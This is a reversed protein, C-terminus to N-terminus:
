LIIGEQKAAHIVVSGGDEWELDSYFMLDFPKKFTKVLKRGIGTTLEIREFVSKERFTKSVIILDIDSDKNQTGRATSGFVVIKDTNIGKEKLLHRLEKNLRINIRSNRQAM